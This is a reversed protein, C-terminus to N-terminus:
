EKKPAITDRFDKLTHGWRWVGTDGDANWTVRAILESVGQAFIHQKEDLYCIKGAAVMVTAGEIKLRTREKIWAEYKDATKMCEDPSLSVKLQKCKVSSM